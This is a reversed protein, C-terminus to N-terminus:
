IGLNDFPLDKVVWHKAKSAEWIEDDTFLSFRPLDKIDCVPMFYDESHDNMWISYIDRDDQTIDLGLPVWKMDKMDTPTLLHWPNLVRWAREAAEKIRKDGTNYDKQIHPKRVM